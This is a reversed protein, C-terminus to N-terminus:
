PARQLVLPGLFLTREGSIDFILRNADADREPPSFELALRVSELERLPVSAKSRWGAVKQSTEGQLLNDAERIKRLTSDALDGGAVSMTRQAGLNTVRLYCYVKQRSDLRACGYLEVGFSGATDASIPTGYREPFISTAARPRIGSEAPTSGAPKSDPTARAAAITGDRSPFALRASPRALLERIAAVDVAIDGDDRGPISGLAVAVLESRTNVVPSGAASASLQAGLRLLPRGNDDPEVHTVTREAVSRTAGKRPGLVSVRQALIASRRALALSNGPLAIRPLVALDLKVDAQDLTTVTSLLDGEAGFIEARTAGRLHRLATIVRGDTVRVGTGSTVDSTGERYAVITM